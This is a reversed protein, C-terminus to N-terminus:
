AATTVTQAIVEQPASPPPQGLLERRLDQLRRLATPDHHARALGQIGPGPGGLGAVPLEARRAPPRHGQGQPPDGGLDARDPQLPPHAPPARGPVAPPGRARRPQRGGLRGGDPYLPQWKAIFRAARRRAEAVAAEGETKIQDFIARYDWKLQDQAHAPVKAILNRCVQVLGRQHLSAAFSCEIAAGLGKGGDSIVLLPAGLGRDKLDTLLARWADTSEAAGPALGLFVPKGDTSIGWAVLVPEARAKPHLKFFSGDLYLYDIRVGTLDRRKWADFEARLRQCIRSVTTRSVAAQEGFVEALMAEVDRDSLGRV